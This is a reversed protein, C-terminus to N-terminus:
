EIPDKKENTDKVLSVLAGLGSVVKKAEFPMFITKNNPGTTMKELSKIYKESLFYQAAKGEGKVIVDSVAQIAKAKAEGEREIAQAKLFAMEKEAQANLIVSQKHGEAELMVSEKKGNARLIASEREGQAELILARKEREATMQRSMARRLHEAPQIDKIEVRVVEVGWPTETAEDIVKLLRNSIAERNSLMSDLEMDGLVTRLNTMVLQTIAFNLNEVKYAAKEPDFIRYFVVGDVKVMANDRSIVDQPPIDLVKERMSLRAGIRQVFPLIFHLGPNLIKTFRGFHELTYKYGQPVIIITRSLSTLLFLIIGILPFITTEFIFM